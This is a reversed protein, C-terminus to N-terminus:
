AMIMQGDTFAALRKQLFNFLIAKVLIATVIAPLIPSIRPPNAAAMMM